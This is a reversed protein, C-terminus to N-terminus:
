KLAEVATKIKASTDTGAAGYVVVLNEHTFLKVDTGPVSKKLQAKVKDLTGQDKLTFLLVIQKDAAATTQNSFAKQLGEKAADSPVPTEKLTVGSAKEVAAQAAGADVKAKSGGCGSAVLAVTALSLALKTTLRNMTPPVSHTPDADPLRTDGRPNRERVCIENNGSHKRRYARAGDHSLM